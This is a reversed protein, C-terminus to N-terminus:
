RGDRKAVETTWEEITWGNKIIAADISDNIEKNLFTSNKFLVECIIELVEDFPTRKLIRFTNDENMV